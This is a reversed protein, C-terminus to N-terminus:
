SKTVIIKFYSYQLVISNQICIYMPFKLFSITNSEKQDLTFSSVILKCKNNLIYYKSKFKYFKSNKTDATM